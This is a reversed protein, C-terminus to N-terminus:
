TNCFLISADAPATTMAVDYLGSCQSIFPLEIVRTVRVGPSILLRTTMRKVNSHVCQHALQSDTEDYTGYLMDYIDFDDISFCVSSIHRQKGPSNTLEYQM